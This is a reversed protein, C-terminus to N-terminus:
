ASVSSAPTGATGYLRMGAVDSRSAARRSLGAQRSGGICPGPKVAELGLAQVRDVGTKVAVREVHDGELM